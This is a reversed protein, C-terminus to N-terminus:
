FKDKLRLSSSPFRYIELRSGSVASRLFIFVALVLLLGHKPGCIYYLFTNSHMLYKCM